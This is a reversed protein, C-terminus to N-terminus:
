DDPLDVQRRPPAAQRGSEGEIRRRAQARKLASLVEGIPAPPMHSAVVCFVPIEFLGFLDEICSWRLMQPHDDMLNYLLDELDVPM